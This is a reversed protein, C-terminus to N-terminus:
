NKSIKNAVSPFPPIINELVKKPLKTAAQKLFGSADLIEIYVPENDETFHIIVNGSQEAFDIPKKSLWINLVDDESEYVFNPINKM